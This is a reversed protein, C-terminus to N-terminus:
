ATTDRPAGYFFALALCVAVLGAFVVPIAFIFRWSVLASALSALFFSAILPRVRPPDAKALAAFQWLLVAQVFLYISILVGFGVYFDWYTRSLGEAEFRFSRMERLVATEGAPSWSQMGGLSHGVAFILTLISAVRLLISTSM